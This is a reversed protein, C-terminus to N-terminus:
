FLRESIPDSLVSGFTSSTLTRASAGALSAEPVISRCRSTSEPTSNWVGHERLHKPDLQTALARCSTANEGLVDDVCGDEDGGNWSESSLRCVTWAGNRRATTVFAMGMAADAVNCLIGGDDAFFCRVRKSATISARLAGIYPLTIHSVRRGLVVTGPRRM